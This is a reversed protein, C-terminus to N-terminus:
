HSYENAFVGLRYHKMSSVEPPYYLSLIIQRTALKCIGEEQCEPNVLVERPDGWPGKLIAMDSHYCKGGFHCAQFDWNM